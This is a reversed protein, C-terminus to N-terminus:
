SQVRAMRLYLPFKVPLFHYNRWAQKLDPMIMDLPSTGKKQIYHQVASWTNLYGLFHEFTWSSKINFKPAPIEKFPFPITQYHEDIYHRESDWYLGLIHTYFNRIISNIAPTIELLNYCWVALIAENASVRHVQKYFAEFDFWHIAQAVTILNVSHSSIETKEASALQYHINPKQVANQLQTQSIDSAEVREFYNALVAAVQGNGCGCDWAVKREPVYSLIFNYLAAPYVPRYQAYCAAYSSFNDKM